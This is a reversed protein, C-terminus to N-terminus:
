LPTYQVTLALVAIGSLLLAWTKRDGWHRKKSTQEVFYVWMFLLLVTSASAKGMVTNIWASQVAMLSVAYKYALLCAIGLLGYVLAPCYRSAAL